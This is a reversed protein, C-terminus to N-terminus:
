STKWSMGGFFGSNENYEDQEISDNREEDPVSCFKAPPHLVIETATPLSM